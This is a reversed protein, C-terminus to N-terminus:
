GTVIKLVPKFRILITFSAALPLIMELFGGLHNPSYFTGSARGEYNPNSKHLIVQYVAFCSIGLAVLILELSIIPIFAKRHLNSLVTFFLLGYLVVEVAEQRAVYEIEATRWRVISYLTFATVALCVPPWLIQAKPAIWLRALHMLAAGMILTELVLFQPTEVAGMALPGFALAAMVLFLVIWECARDISSRNV